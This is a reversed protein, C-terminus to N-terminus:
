PLEEVYCWSQPARKIMLAGNGCREEFERYMACVECFLDNKCPKMFESLELPKDYIYLNSIHWGYLFGWQGYDMLEDATLCSGDLLEWYAAVHDRYGPTSMTTKDCVFEGLVKGNAKRIKGDTGHIELVQRPDKTKPMSCYIYCKFPTSLKPSSKRVEITKEGSVIKHCWEPRISILVARVGGGDKGTGGNHRNKWRVM